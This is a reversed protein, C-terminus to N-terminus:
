NLLGAAKWVQEMGADLFLQRTEDDPSVPLSGTLQLHPWDPFTRFQAGAVLGIMVGTAVLSHWAPHQENWDCQFGSIAVDDPVLDVAMGYNHWSHGAQANTVIKGPTTRGQAYLKAQEDWSRLGQTVRFEFQDSLLNYLQHIKDALAPCILQLRAESVSDM